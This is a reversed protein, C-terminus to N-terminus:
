SGYFNISDVKVFSRISNQAAGEATWHGRHAIVKTMGQAGASQTACLTLAAQFLVTYFFRSFVHM